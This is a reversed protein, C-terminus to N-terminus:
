EKLYFKANRSKIYEELEPTMEAQVRMPRQECSIAIEEIDSAFESKNLCDEILDSIGLKKDSDAGDKLIVRIAWLEDM